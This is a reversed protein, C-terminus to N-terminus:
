PLLSGHAPPGPGESPDGKRLQDTLKFVHFDDYVQDLTLISKNDFWTVQAEGGISCDFLGDPTYAV